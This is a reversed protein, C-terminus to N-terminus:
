QSRGGQHSASTPVLVGQSTSSGHGPRMLCTARTVCTRNPNGVYIQDHGFHWAFRSPMYPELMLVCGPVYVLYGPHINLLWQFAKRSLSTDIGAKSSVDHYPRGLGPVDSSRCFVSYSLDSSLSERVKPLYNHTWSFGELRQLFSAHPHPNHPADMLCLCHMMFWAMLHTTAAEVEEVAVGSPEQSARQPKKAKPHSAKKHMATFSSVLDRLGRHIGAM